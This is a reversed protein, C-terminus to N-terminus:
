VKAAGGAELAVATAHQPDITRLVHLAEWAPAQVTCGRAARSAVARASQKLQQPPPSRPAPSAPAPTPATLQCRQPPPAAM